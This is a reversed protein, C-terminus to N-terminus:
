FRGEKRRVYIHELYTVNEDFKMVVVWHLRCAAPAPLYICVSCLSNLAHVSLNFPICIYYKVVDRDSKLLQINGHCTIERIKKPFRDGGRGQFYKNIGVHLDHAKHKIWSLSLAMHGWPRQPPCTYTGLERKTSRCVLRAFVVDGVTCTESCRVSGLAEFSGHHKLMM